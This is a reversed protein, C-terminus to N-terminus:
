EDGEEPMVKLIPAQRAQARGTSKRHATVLVMIGAMKKIKGFQRGRLFVEDGEKLKNLTRKVRTLYITELQKIM